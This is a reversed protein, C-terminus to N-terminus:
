EIKFTRKVTGKPVTIIIEKSVKKWITFFKFIRLESYLYTNRNL